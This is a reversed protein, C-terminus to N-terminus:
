RMLTTVRDPTHFPADDPGRVYTHIWIKRTTGDAYHQRRWHARVWTRYNMKWVGDQPDISGFTDPRRLRIITVMPPPRNTRHQLRRHLKKDTWEAVDVITQGMLMFIAYMVRHINIVDIPYSVLPTDPEYAYADKMLSMESKYKPDARRMVEDLTEQNEHGLLMPGIRMGLTVAGMALYHFPGLNAGGAGTQAYVDFPDDSPAYVTFEITTEGNTRQYVHWSFAGMATQVERADLHYLPRELVCFGTRSPLVELQWQELGDLKLAALVSVALMSESVHFLTAINLHDVEKNMMARGSWATGEPGNKRIRKLMQLQDHSLDDLVQPRNELRYLLGELDFLMMQDLYRLYAPSQLYSQHAHVMAPVQIAKIGM